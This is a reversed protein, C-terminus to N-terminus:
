DWLKIYADALRDRWSTWNHGTAGETYNVPYGKKKLLDVVERSDATGEFLGDDLYLAFPREDADLKELAKVVREDDVWFSASQAGVRGFVSPHKLATWISTIGGLSAGLLA